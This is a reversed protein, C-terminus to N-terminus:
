PVEQAFPRGMSPKSLRRQLPILWPLFSAYAELISAFLEENSVAAGGAGIFCWPPIHSEPKRAVLAKTEKGEGFVPASPAMVLAEEIEEETFRIIRETDVCYTGVNAYFEVGAKFIRDALDDDSPIPNEPDYKIEYKKIVEKLRPVFVKLDFDKESCFPGKLARDIVEMFSVM